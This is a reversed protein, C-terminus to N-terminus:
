FKSELMSSKKVLRRIIPKTKCGGEEGMFLEVPGATSVFKTWVPCTLTTYTTDHFWEDSTYRYCNGLLRIYQIDM